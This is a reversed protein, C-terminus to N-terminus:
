CFFHTQLVIRNLIYFRLDSVRQPGSGNLFTFCLLALKFDTRKKLKSDTYLILALSIYLMILNQLVSSPSPANNLSEKHLCNPFSFLPTQGPNYSLASEKKKRADEYLYHCILSIRHFSLMNLLCKLHVTQIFTKDFSVGLNHMTQSLKIDAM